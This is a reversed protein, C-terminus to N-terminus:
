LTRSDMFIVVKADVSYGVKGIDINRCKKIEGNTYEEFGRDIAPTTKVVTVVNVEPFIVILPQPV